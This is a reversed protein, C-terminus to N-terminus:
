FHLVQFIAPCSAKPVSTVPWRHICHMLRESETRRLSSLRMHFIAYRSSILCHAIRMHVPALTCRLPLHSISAQMRKRWVVLFVLDHKSYFYFHYYNCLNKRSKEGRRQTIKIKKRVEEVESRKWLKTYKKLAHTDRVFRNHSMHRRCSALQFQSIATHRRRKCPWHARRWSSISAVCKMHSTHMHMNQIALATSPRRAIKQRENEWRTLATTRTCILQVVVQQESRNSINCFYAFEIHMMLMLRANRHKQVQFITRPARTLAGHRKGPLM